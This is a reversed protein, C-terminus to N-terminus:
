AGIVYSCYIDQILGLKEKL